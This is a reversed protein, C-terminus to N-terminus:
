LGGMKLVLVCASLFVVMYKAGTCGAILWVVTDFLLLSM